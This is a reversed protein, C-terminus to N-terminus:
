FLSNIQNRLELIEIVKQLPRSLYDPQEILKDLLRQIKRHLAVLNSPDIHLAIKELLPVYRTTEYYNTVGHTLLRNGILQTTKQAQPTDLPLNQANILISLYLLPDAFGLCQTVAQQWATASLATAINQCYTENNPQTAWHSYLFTLWTDHKHFIAQLTIAQTLENAWDTKNIASMTQPIDGIKQTWYNPHLRVILQALWNIRENGSVLKTKEEVGLEQLQQNIQTPLQLNIKTPMLWSKSVNILTDVYAALKTQYASQPIQALLDLILTRVTKRKDTCIMVLFPEDNASLNIKLQELFVKAAEANEEHWTSQLLQTAQQPQTQRLHIIYPLRQALTATQWDIVLNTQTQQTHQAFDWEPNQQALWRGREGIVQAITPHLEKRNKAWNLLHPLVSPNVCFEKQTIINLLESIITGGDPSTVLLQSLCAIANQPILPLTEAAAAIPLPTNFTLPIFGAKNQVGQIAAIQLLLAEKSKNHTNITYQQAIQTLDSPTFFSKDTGVIAHRLTM